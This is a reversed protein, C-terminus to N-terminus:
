RLSPTFTVPIKVFFPKVYVRIRLETATPSAPTYLIFWIVKLWGELQKETSKTALLNSM